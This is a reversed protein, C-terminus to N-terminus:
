VAAVAKVLAERVEAAIPEFRPDAAAMTQM